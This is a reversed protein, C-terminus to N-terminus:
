HYGQLIKLSNQIMKLFYDLVAQYGGLQYFYEINQHNLTM